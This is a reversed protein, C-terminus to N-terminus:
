QIEWGYKGINVTLPNGLIVMVVLQLNLYNLLKSKCSSEREFVKPFIKRSVYETAIFSSDDSIRSLSFPVEAFPFRVLREGGQLREEREGLSNAPIKSNIPDLM